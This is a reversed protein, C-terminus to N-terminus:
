QKIFKVFARTGNSELELFYLGPQLQGLLVEANSGETAFFKGEANRIGLVTVSAGNSNEINLKDTAPNPYVTVEQSLALSSKVSTIMDTFVYLERGTTAETASLFLKGPTGYLDDPALDGTGVVTEHYQFNGGTYTWIELGIDTAGANAALFYLANNSQRMDLQTYNVFSTNTIKSTGNITGDTHYIEYYWSDEDQATFYIEGNYVQIDEAYNFKTASSYLTYTGAVTGDSVFLEYGRQNPDNPSLAADIYVKNNYVLMYESVLGSTAFSTLKITGADTGDTAWLGKDSAYEAYFIVKGNVNKFQMSTQYFPAFRHIETSTTSAVDYSELVDADTSHDGFDDYNWAYYITGADKWFYDDIRGDATFFIANTEAVTNVERINDYDRYYLKGNNSTLNYIPWNLDTYNLRVTGALTGDTLYIVSESNNTLLFALHTADFSIFSEFRDYQGPATVLVQTGGSTGDSVWLEPLSTVDNFNSIFILDGLNAKIGDDTGYVFSDDSGPSLDKVLQVSSQALLISSFLISLLILVLKKM